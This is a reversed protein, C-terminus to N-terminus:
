EEENAEKDSPPVEDTRLLQGELACLARLRALLAEVEPVVEGKSASGVLEMEKERNSEGNYAEKRGVAKSRAISSNAEMDYNFKKTIPTRTFNFNISHNSHSKELHAKQNEKSSNM